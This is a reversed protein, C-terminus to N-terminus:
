SAVKLLLIAASRGPLTAAPSYGAFSGGDGVQLPAMAEGALLDAATYAGPQLGSRELSLLCNSAEQGSFNALVLVSEEGAAHRLYALTTDCSTQVPVFDGRRLAVHENRLHILQRYHSLLSDPDSFQTAVNAKQFGPNVRIWPEGSTFGANAEASWLMPTRIFEDPKAGRMGIEEGYYVFPVGPLTLLLSAAVKVKDEDLTLQNMLRDQDHNTLFTALQGLPYASLLQALDASTGAPKGDNLSRIIAQALDFEFALDVEDNRVYPAVEATADWVEGVTLAEPDVSDLFDDFGALWQHTAPTGDYVQGDEILHRIADLRFGDAGMDELWFRAVRQMEETVAPNRYNLDPMGEWFFGFYYSNGRPHWVPGGYNGLSGDNEASWIYWDRRDSAPNAAAEEFWPHEVSTHNLVLDVIVRIGRRHAEEILRQFDANTGYDEEVTTYDVADYGHYSPSQAIPMLWIGTVGLDDTTAPDGDNLYDLKEILGNLDGIGDGDSDSFSRVFVEYFVADNWWASALPEELLTPAPTAPAPVPTSTAPVSAPTPQAQPLCGALFLTAILLAKALHSPRRM